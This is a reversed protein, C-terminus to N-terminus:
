LAGRGKNPGSINQGSRRGLQRVVSKQFLFPMRQRVDFLRGGAGRGTTGRPRVGKGVQRQGRQAQEKVRDQLWRSTRAVADEARSRVIDRSNPAYKRGPNRKGKDFVDRDRVGKPYVKREAAEIHQMAAEGVPVRPRAAPRLPPIPVPIPLPPLPLVPGGPDPITPLPPIVAPPLVDIPPPDVFGRWERGGRDQDRVRGRAEARGPVGVIHPVDDPPDGTDVDPVHEAYSSFPCAM